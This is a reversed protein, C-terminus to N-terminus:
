GWVAATANPEGIRELVNDILEQARQAFHHGM